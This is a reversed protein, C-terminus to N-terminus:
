AARLEKRVLLITPDDPDTVTTFGMQQEIEIAARNERREISELVKVGKAQAVRSLFGLLEWGVGRNKYDARISIAVEGREFAPDCALMATAILPDGSEGFALYNETRVHDVDTLAAIREKGVENLGTLYRFSLDEKTVHTFFEALMPEDETRVPRVHIKLGTRTMLDATLNGMTIEKPQAKERGAFAFPLHNTFM